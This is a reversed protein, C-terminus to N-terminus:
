DLSKGNERFSKNKTTLQELEREDFFHKVINNYCRIVWNTNNLDLGWISRRSKDGYKQSKKVEVIRWEKLKELHYIVVRQSVGLRFSLEEVQMSHSTDFSKILLYLISARTKNSCIMRIQPLFKTEINFDFLKSSGFKGSRQLMKLQLERDMLLERDKM